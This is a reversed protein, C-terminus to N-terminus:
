KTDREKIWEIYRLVEDEQEPTLDEGLRSLSRRPSRPPVSMQVIRGGDPTYGPPPGPYGAAIQLSADDVGLAAELDRITELNPPRKIDGQEWRSITGSNRDIARGVAELKM